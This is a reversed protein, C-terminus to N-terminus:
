AVIKIKLLIKDIILYVIIFWLFLLLNNTMGGTIARCVYLTIISNIINYKIKDTTKDVIKCLMGMIFMGIYIGIYGFNIYFEGIITPTVGAGNFQINLAEKLWLTFDVDPGPKLMLFNIIYTYGNQFPVYNPFRRFIYSLNINNVEMMNDLLHKMTATDDGSIIIRIYYLGLMGLVGILGFNILKKLPLKYKNNYIIIMVLFLEAIRSRFGLTFLMFTTFLVILVIAKTKINRYNIYGDFLIWVALMSLYIFYISKGNGQMALVRGNEMDALLLGINSKIFNVWFLTSIIFISIAIKKRKEILYKSEDKYGNANGKMHESFIITIINGILFLVLAILVVIHANFSYNYNKNSLIIPGMGIFFIYFIVFLSSCNLFKFKNSLFVLFSVISLILFYVINNVKVQLLSDFSTFFMTLSLIIIISLVGIIKDNKRSM